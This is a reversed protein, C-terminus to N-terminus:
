VPSAYRRSEISLPVRRNAVADNSSGWLRYFVFVRAARAAPPPPLPSSFSFDRGVDAPRPALRSRLHSPSDHISSLRRSSDRTFLSVVSYYATPRPPPRPPRGPRPRHEHVLYGEPPPPKIVPTKRCFPKITRAEHDAAMRRRTSRATQTHWPVIRVKERERESARERQCDDRGVVSREPGEERRRNGGFLPVFRSVTENDLM